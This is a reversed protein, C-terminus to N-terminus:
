QHVLIPDLMKVGPPRYFFDFEGPGPPELGRPGLLMSIRQRDQKDLLRFVFMHDSESIFPRPIGSPRLTSGWVSVHRSRGMQVLRALEPSALHERTLRQIEDLYVVTGKRDFIRDYISNLRSDKRHDQMFPPRVIIRTALPRRRRSTLREWNWPLDERIQWGQGLTPEFEGKPDIVVIPIRRPILRELTAQALTTKGSGTHGVFFVRDSLKIRAQLGYVEQVPPLDSPSSLQETQWQRNDLDTADM